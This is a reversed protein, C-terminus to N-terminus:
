TSRDALPPWVSGDDPLVLYSTSESAGSCWSTRPLRGIVLTTITFELETGPPWM